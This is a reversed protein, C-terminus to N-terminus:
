LTVLYFLSVPPPNYKEGIAEMTECIFLSRKLGILIAKFRGGLLMCKSFSKKKCSTLQHMCKRKNQHSCCNALERKNTKACSRGIGGQQREEIVETSGDVRWGRGQPCMLCVSRNEGRIRLLLFNSKILLSYNINHCITHHRM